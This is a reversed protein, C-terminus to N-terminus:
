PERRRAQRRLFLLGLLALPMVPASTCGGGGSQLILDCVDGVGDDDKDAQDANAVLPCNDFADPMGDDDGDPCEGLGEDTAGDCDDDLGNCAEIQEPGDGVCETGGDAACVRVGTACVDSDDGDCEGGLDPFDEDSTGDCDDDLGNCTETSAGTLPDCDDSEAGNVCLVTGQGRCVGVGCTSTYVVFDEDKQGDCDSDINDCVADDAQPVGPVCGDVVVGGECRTSVIRACAGVGCAVNTGVFDEDTQGDCDGDVGDCVTDTEVTPVLPVCSDATTGGTLCRLQGTAACAGTGCTTGVVVFDEDTSGDCDDDFRDCSADVPAVQPGPVCTNTPQGGVCALVGVRACAGRGCGTPSEVWGEDTSGDCNDDVGNCTLDTPGLPPRVACSDSVVGGACSLIGQGTCAGVGCSTESAAFDEDTAGDCDGDRSDCTLDTDEERYGVVCTDIVDGDVCSRRGESACVGLGCTTDVAPYDEDTQGDGDDDVGDCSTDDCGRPDVCAFGGAATCEVVGCLAGVPCTQGVAGLPGEDTVGDLDNDIADCVEPLDAAADRCCLVGGQRDGFRKTISNREAGVEGSCMWAWSAPLGYGWETAPDDGVTTVQDMLGMCFAGASRDLPGCVAAAGLNGCGYVADGNGLVIDGCSSTARTAFFAGGPPSELPGDVGEGLPPEGLNAYFPDVADLCGAVGVRDDVDGPGRCVHWGPACLDAAACGLGDENPGHNGAVRACQPAGDLGPVDFAGGCAAIHPYEAVDLFGERTGDSCGVIAPANSSCPVPLGEDTMGDCDNDLTDCLEPLDPRLRPTESCFGADCRDVTCSDNDNCLCGLGVNYRFTSLDPVTVSYSPSPPWSANPDYPDDVPEALTVVYSGAPVDVPLTDGEAGTVLNAVVEGGPIRVEVRWGVLDDEYAQQGTQEFTEFHVHVVLDVARVSPAFVVMWLALVRWLGM